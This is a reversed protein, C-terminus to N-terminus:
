EERALDVIQNEETVDKNRAFDKAQLLLYYSFQHLAMPDDRYSQLVQDFVEDLQVTINANSVSDTLVLIPADITGNDNPIKVQISRQEGDNDLSM